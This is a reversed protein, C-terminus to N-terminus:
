FWYKRWNFHLKENKNKTYKTILDQFKYKCSLYNIKSKLIFRGWRSYKAWYDKRFQAIAKAQEAEEEPTRDVSWVFSEAIEADTMGEAKRKQYFEESEEKTM